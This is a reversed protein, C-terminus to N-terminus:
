AGRLEADAGDRERLEAVSSLCASRRLKVAQDAREHFGDTDYGEVLGRGISEGPDCGRQRPPTLRDAREVGEYRSMRQRQPQCEDGVVGLVESADRPERGLVPNSEM